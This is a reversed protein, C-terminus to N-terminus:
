KYMKFYNPIFVDYGKDHFYEAIKKTGQVKSGLGVLILIAEKKDLVKNTSDIFINEKNKALVSICIISFILAFFIKM